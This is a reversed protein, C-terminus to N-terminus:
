RLILVADSVRTLRGDSLKALEAMAAPPDDLRLGGSIRQASVTDDGVIIWGRHYRRLEAVIEGLPRDSFYLRGRSWGFDEYSDAAEVPRLRDGALGGRQGAVLRQREDSGARLRLDVEGERVAVTLDRARREVSFSTGIDRVVAGDVVISFPRSDPAVTAYVRGGRLRVTRAEGNYDVDVTTATDLVLRTGDELIAVSQEGVRTAHDAPLGPAVGRLRAAGLGLVAVLALPVVVAATRAAPRPKARRTAQGLVASGWLAEVRAYAAEHAPDVACWADFAPDAGAQAQNRVFWALAEEDAAPLPRAQSKM